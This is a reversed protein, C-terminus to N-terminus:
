THEESRDLQDDASAVGERSYVRERLAALEAVDTSDITSPGDRTPGGPNGDSM